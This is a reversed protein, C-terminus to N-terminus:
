SRRTRVCTPNPTCASKAGNNYKCLALVAEEAVLRIKNLAPKTYAKKEQSVTQADTYKEEKM